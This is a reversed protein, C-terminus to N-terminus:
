HSMGRGACWKTIEAAGFVITSLALCLALEAGSLPVTHLLAQGTPLFVAALQLLLTLGCAGLLSKNTFLGQRFLSERESRAALALSIQSLTLSSFLITQWKTSGARWFGYGALLAVLGLLLGILLIWLGTGGGLLGETPRRPPRQMTDREAPEVSLALAPLGDTMLNMWLIQLPQLPLPLGFAPACLMVWMEGSNSALMYRTFKRLNDYITRGEEVAAVITAFNDDQLVITAAERAVDTGSSGMAVGIDARMLAPADNVGDGTMAVIHGGRKLADVIALKNEPTVRAFVSIDRVATDLESESLHALQEGTLTKADSTALGVEAAVYRSTLPYDGTIMIPRIGATRCVEIARPVEPRAPDVLAVMGIITLGNEIEGHRSTIEALGRFAVGLVRAGGSALRDLATLLKERRPPTLPELEGHGWVTDSIGLLSEMAGKTVALYPACGSSEYFVKLLAESVEGDPVAVRHITTMRRRDSDFPLESIRPLLEDLAQKNIGEGQAAEILAVEMPDGSDSSADNCLAAGALLLLLDQDGTRNKVPLKCERGSVVATTVRMRNGTLTGTKDTCIVTVSGLTEVAALNRVLANRRLMRQSGLALSITVVAPLGEPVAAVALSIATLFMETFKTGRLLGSIFVVGVLAIAAGALRRSLADLRLQLPTKERDTTRILDAIRGLETRSGTETVVGLARGHTVVTGAYSMNRRDGIPAGAPVLAEANKHVPESEGTLVAEQTRLQIASLLRCDASVINGAELLVIDGPALQRSPLNQIKGDRKVKAVPLCLQQLAELAREARYEQRFGLLANLAVIACIAVADTVDGMAASVVGATILILVMLSTFQRGFIRLSGRRGKSKIENPGAEQLRRAADATKLGRDADVRLYAIVAQATQGYWPTATSLREIPHLRAPIADDREITASAKRRM